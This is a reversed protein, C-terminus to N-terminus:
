DVALRGVKSPVPGSSGPCPAAPGTGPGRDVRGTARFARAHSPPAACEACRTGQAREVGHSRRRTGNSVPGRDPHFRWQAIDWLRM